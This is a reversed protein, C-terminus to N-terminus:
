LEEHYLFTLEDSGTLAYFSIDGWIQFPFFASKHKQRWCKPVYYINLHHNQNFSLIFTSISSYSSLAGTKNFTIILCDKSHLDM